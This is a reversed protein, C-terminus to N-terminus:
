RAEPNRQPAAQSVHELCIRDSELCLDLGGDRRTTLADRVGRALAAMTFPKQLFMTDGERAGERVVADDTYGSMYIIKLAPRLEQLMEALQRGGMRPMVLDTLLLHVGGEFAAAVSLAQQGSDAELVKYGLGGLFNSIAERVAEEDEVILLTETGPESSYKKRATSPMAVDAAKPLYIIFCAGKGIDSDVKIGGGMQNVIGYVTSLGLGTGKDVEKTTFFPEFIHKQVEKSIGVGTDTVSLEVYEGPPLYPTERMEPSDQAVRVNSTAITLTGGGSMADRSNVCFNMLVQVIQNPDVRVAWLPDGASFHLAIDEGVLRTLMTSAEDITRNLDIIEPSAVQKRSFALLQSTLGAARDTAQLIEQIRRRADGEALINDHVLDANGRIVMLLNNFDHAVGGALRGVAEMKQSQRLQEELERMGQEARKKETIDMIVGAQRIPRCSADFVNRGRAHIWRITGDAMQIRFELTQHTEDMQHGQRIMRVAAERDEPVILNFLVELSYANGPAVGYITRAQEDWFVEGTTLDHSWIGLKAADVAIRLRDRSESLEREVRNRETIDRLFCVFSGGDFELFTVRIEVDIVKGDKRRHRSEFRDGGQQRIRRIHDATEQTSEAAEVDPISLQLLEERTYGSMECYADNVELFKGQTNVIWFGDLATRLITALHQERVKLAEAAESRQRESEFADLAFSIDVAVEDLLRTEADNLFDGDATGVVFLGWVQGHLRIPYAACGRLGVEETLVRCHTARPDTRLENIVCPREQQIAASACGCDGIPEGAVIGASDGVKVIAVLGGTAPDLRAIWATKFRGFELAIECIKPFLEEGSRARVIAQNVQSLTALLRNLRRIESEAKHKYVAVEINTRLERDEFPKLIYGFPEAQRARELTSDDAYATLFVVPLKFRRRIETAATIGDMAGRLRIDMLVLDPLLSGALEIAAVGSDAKGVVKYGLNHLRAEIDNAVVWEDEAILIRAANM